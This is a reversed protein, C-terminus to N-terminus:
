KRKKTKRKGGRSGPYKNYYVKKTKKKLIEGPTKTEVRAYYRKPYKKAQKIMTQKALKSYEGGKKRRGGYKRTKGKARRKTIQKMKKNYINRGKKREHRRKRRTRVGRESPTFRTKEIYKGLNNINDKLKQMRGPCGNGSNQIFDGIKGFVKSKKSSELDVSKKVELKLNVHVEIDFILPNLKKNFRTLEKFKFNAGNQKIIVADKIEFSQNKSPKVLKHIDLQKDNSFKATIFTPLFIMGNSKKNTKSSPQLSDYISENYKKEIPVTIRDMSKVGIPVRVNITHGDAEITILRGGVSSGDIDERIMKGSKFGRPVFFELSKSNGSGKIKPRKSKTKSLFTSEVVKKIQSNVKNKMRQQLEFNPQGRAVFEPYLPENNNGVKFYQDFLEEGKKRLVRLRRNTQKMNYNKYATLYSNIINIPVFPSSCIYMGLQPILTLIKHGGKDQPINQISRAIKNNTTKPSIFELDYTKVIKGYLRTNTESTIMALKGHNSENKNRPTYRVYDGPILPRDPIDVDFELFNNRTLNFLKNGSFNSKYKYTIRYLVNGPPCNQPKYFKKVISPNINM